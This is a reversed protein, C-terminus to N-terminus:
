AAKKKSKAKAKNREARKAAYKSAAENNAKVLNPIHNSKLKFVRQIRGLLKESVPVASGSAKAVGREIHGLYGPSIQLKKAAADRELKMAERARRVVAGFTEKQSM